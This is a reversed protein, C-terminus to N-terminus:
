QGDSQKEPQGLSHMLVVVELEFEEVVGEVVEEKVVDLEEVVDEDKVVEVAELEEVVDEDKIVVFEVTAVDVVDSNSFEDVDDVQVPGGNDPIVITVEVVVIPSVTVTVALAVNEKVAENKVGKGGHVIM